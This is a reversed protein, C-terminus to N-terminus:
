PHWVTRKEVNGCVACIYQEEETLKLSRGCINCDMKERRMRVPVDGWPMETTLTDNMCLLSDM